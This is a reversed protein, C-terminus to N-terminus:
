FNPLLASEALMFFYSDVLAALFLLKDEKSM